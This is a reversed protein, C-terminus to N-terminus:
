PLHPVSGSRGEVLGVPVLRRDGAMLPLWVDLLRRLLGPHSQEASSLGRGARLRCRHPFPVIVLVSSQLSAPALSCCPGRVMVPSVVGISSFSSSVALAADEHFAVFRHPSPHYKNDMANDLRDLSHGTSISPFTTLSV